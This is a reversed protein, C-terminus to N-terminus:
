HLTDGDELQQPPPSYSQKIDPMGSINFVIKDGTGASVETAKLKPYLYSLLRILINILERNTNTYLNMQDENMNAEPSLGRTINLAMTEMLKAYIQKNYGYIEILEKAVHFNHDNELKKLLMQSRKNPSGAPRPM